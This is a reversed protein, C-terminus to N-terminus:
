FAGVLDTGPSAVDFLIAFSLGRRDDNDFLKALLGDIDTINGPSDALNRILGVQKGKIGRDLGRAGAIV